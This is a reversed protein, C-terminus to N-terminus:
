LCVRQVSMLMEMSMCETCEDGCVHVRHVRGWLCANQASTGVSMCETCEDGCVHVRDGCVHVKHVRGRLCATQASTGASMCDTCEDGCVHLRHVRGWLCAEAGGVCGWAVQGVRARQNGRHSVLQVWNSQNPNARAEAGGM